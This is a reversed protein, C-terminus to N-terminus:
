LEPGGSRSWRRKVPGALDPKRYFHQELTERLGLDRVLQRVNIKGDPTSPLTPERKGDAQASWAM